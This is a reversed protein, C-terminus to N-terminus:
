LRDDLNGGAFIDLDEHKETIGRVGAACHSQYRVVPLGIKVCREVVNAFVPLVKEPCHLDLRGIPRHIDHQVAPEEILRDSTTNPGTGAKILRTSCIPETVLELVTHRESRDVRCQCPLM